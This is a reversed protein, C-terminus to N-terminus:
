PRRGTFALLKTQPDTDPPVDVKPGFHGSSRLAEDLPLMGELMVPVLEPDLTEDLGTARALDWTHIVVDGLIVSGIAERVTQSGLAEMEFERGALDRDELIAQVAEALATWAEGPDDAVSPLDLLSVGAAALFDPMWAVMHGVVDRATWGECPSPNEWADDPVERVRDTFRAAVRRFQEATLDLSPLLGELRDFTAQMGQEMGSGLHGDRHERSTHLVLTRLTTVGEAHILTMTNLSEADPFGEFVETTVIRLPPEVERYTGHWALENGDTDLSVYRWTGGPRLDVDCSVLPCWDPGWWRLLHRPQTLAAWVLERPAEFSRSILIETDSPLTVTASGLRTTM